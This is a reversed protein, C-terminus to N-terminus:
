AAIRAQWPAMTADAELSGDPAIREFGHNGVAWVGTAGVLQRADAAARGSVLSVHVGPAAALREVSMRTAAPVFAAGPTPAIPSLTGDVDLLVILPSADLRDRLREHLADPHTM